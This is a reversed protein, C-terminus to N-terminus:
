VLPFSFLIIFCPFIVLLKPNNKAGIEERGALRKSILACWISSCKRKDKWFSLFSKKKTNWSSILSDYFFASSIHSNLKFALEYTIGLQVSRNFLLDTCTYTNASFTFYNNQWFVTELPNQGSLYIFLKIISQSFIFISWNIKAILSHRDYM